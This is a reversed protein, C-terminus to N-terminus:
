TFPCLAVVWPGCGGGAMRAWQGQPLKYVTDADAANKSKRIQIITLSYMYNLQKL